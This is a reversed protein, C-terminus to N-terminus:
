IVFFRVGVSYYLNNKFNDFSLTTNSVKFNLYVRSSIKLNVTIFKILFFDFSNYTNKINSIEELYHSNNKYFIDEEKLTTHFNGAVGSSAFFYKNFRYQLELPILFNYVTIKSTSQNGWVGNGSSLSDGYYYRNEVNIIFDIGSQLYIKKYLKINANLFMNFANQRVFIGYIPKTVHNYYYVGPIANPRYSPDELLYMKNRQQPISLNFGLNVNFRKKYLTDENGYFLTPLLLLFFCIKKM